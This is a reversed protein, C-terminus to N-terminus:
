SWTTVLGGKVTITTTSALTIVGTQGKFAGYYYDGTSSNVILDKTVICNDTFTANAASFTLGANAGSGSIYGSATVNGSLLSTGLVRINGDTDLSYNGVKNANIQGSVTLNGTIAVNETSMSLGYDNGDGSLYHAGLDINGGCEIKKKTQLNGSTDINFGHTSNDLNAINTSGISITPGAPNLRLMDVTSAVGDKLRIITESNLLNNLLITDTSDHYMQFDSGTGLIVKVNDNVQINGTLGTNNEDTKLFLGKITAYTIKKLENASLDFVAFVDNTAPKVALENYDIFRTPM